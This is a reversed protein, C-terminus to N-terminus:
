FLESDIRSVNNKDELEASSDKSEVISSDVEAISSKSETIALSESWPKEQNTGIVLVVIFIGFLIGLYWYHKILELFSKNRM